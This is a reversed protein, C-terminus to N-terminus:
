REKSHFQTVAELDASALRAVEGAAPDARLYDLDPHSPDILALLFSRGMAHGAQEGHGREYAAAGFSIAACVAKFKETAEADMDNGSMFADYAELLRQASDQHEGM